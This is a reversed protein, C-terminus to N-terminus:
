APAALSRPKLEALNEVAARKASLGPWDASAAL